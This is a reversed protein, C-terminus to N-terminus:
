TAITPIWAALQELILVFTDLVHLTKLEVHLFSCWYNCRLPYKGYKAMGELLLLMM